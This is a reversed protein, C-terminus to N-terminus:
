VLIWKARLTKGSKEAINKFFPSLYRAEDFPKSSLTGVHNVNVGPRTVRGGDRGIPQPDGDDPM